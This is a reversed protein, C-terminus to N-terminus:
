VSYSTSHTQQSRCPVGHEGRQTKMQTTVRLLQNTQQVYSFACLLRLYCRWKQCRESCSQQNVVDANEDWGCCNVCSLCDTFILGELSIPWTTSKGMLRVFDKRLRLTQVSLEYSGSGSYSWMFQPHKLHHRKFIKQSFSVAWRVTLIIIWALCM